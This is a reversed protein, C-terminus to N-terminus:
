KFIQNLKCVLAYFTVFSDMSSPLRIDSYESVIILADGLKNSYEPKNKRVWNFFERGLKNFGISTKDVWNVYLYDWIEVTSKSNFIVEYMREDTTSNKSGSHGTLYFHQVDQWIKRFDPFRSNIIDKVEEKPLNLGDNNSIELLRIAYQRKLDKTEDSNSPTFDIINFRSQIPENIQNINNCTAIFRVRESHEEIFSKLEEQLQNTARDFEEFYVVRVRKDKEYDEKDISVIMQKCFKDIETRLTEVGLKSSFIKHHYNQLIIRACTTKGCGPSGTFIMNTQIGKMLIKRIRDPIVVDDLKTPRYKEWFLYNTIM